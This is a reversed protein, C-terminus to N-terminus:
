GPAFDYIPTGIIVSMASWFAGVCYEGLIVGFFFYKAKRHTSIDGYKLIIWKVISSIILCTWFYEVGFPMSLAYGAPHFPWWIFRIRMLMLFFTFLAGGITFGIATINADKPYAFLLARRRSLAIQNACWAFQGKIFNIGLGYEVRYFESVMAWFSALTGVLVALAMVQM